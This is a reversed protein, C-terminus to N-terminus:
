GGAAGGYSVSGSDFLLAAYDPGSLADRGDAPLASRILLVLVVAAAAALICIADIYRHSVM